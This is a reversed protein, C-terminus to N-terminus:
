CHYKRCSKTSREIEMKGEGSTNNTAGKGTRRAGSYLVIYM